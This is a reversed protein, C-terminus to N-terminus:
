GVTEKKLENTFPKAGGSSGFCRSSKTAIGSEVYGNGLAEPDRVNLILYRMDTAEGALFM